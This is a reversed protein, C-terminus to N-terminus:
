YSDIQKKSNYRMYTEDHKAGRQALHRMTETAWHPATNNKSPSLTDNDFFVGETCSGYFYLLSEAKANLIAKGTEDMAPCGPMYGDNQFPQITNSELLRAYLPSNKRQISPRAIRADIVYDFTQLKGNPLMSEFSADETNWKLSSGDIPSLRIIGATALAEIKKINHVPPGYCVRNFAGFYYEDLRQQSQGTFGGAQYIKAIFPAIQRWISAAAMLPSEQDGVEAERIMTRLIELQEEQTYSTPYGWQLLTDITFKAEEPMHRLRKKLDERRLEKWLCAYYALQIEGAIKPLVEKEFDIKRSRAIIQIEQMWQEDILIRSNEGQFSPPRCLIPANTRSFPYLIPENGSPQYNYSELFFGGRGETLQLAADIFTLGYGVIGVHSKPKIKDLHVLPYASLIYNDTPISHNELIPTNDYCHGTTIMVSEATFIQSATKIVFHNEPKYISVITGIIPKLEIGKPLDNVVTRLADQLYLGVLARSAYDLPSPKREIDTHSAIWDVLAPTHHDHQIDPSWADIHGICYNILLYDPQDVAYNPGSAFHEDENFWLIQLPMTAPQDKYENLITDLTYFGKPGGGVISISPSENFLAAPLKTVWSLHADYVTERYKSPIHKKQWIM